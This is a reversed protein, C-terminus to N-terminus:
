LFSCSPVSSFKQQFELPHYQNYGGSKFGEFIVGQSWINVLGLAHFKPEQGTVLINLTINVFPFAQLENFIKIKANKVVYECSYCKYVHFM